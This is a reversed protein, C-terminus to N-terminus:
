SKYVYRDTVLTEGNALTVTNRIVNYGTDDQSTILATAVNSTLTPSTVTLCDAAWTSASVSTSREECEASWDNTVKRTEGYTIRLEKKDM